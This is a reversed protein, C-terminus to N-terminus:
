PRCTVHGGGTVARTHARVPSRGPTRACRTGGGRVSRATTTRFPAPSQATQTRTKAFGTREPRHSPCWPPPTPLSDRRGVEAGVGVKGGEYVCELKRTLNETVSNPPPPDSTASVGDGGSSVILCFPRRCSTWDDAEARSRMTGPLPTARANRSPQQTPPPNALVRSRHSPSRQRRRRYQRHGAPRMASSISRPLQQGHIATTM